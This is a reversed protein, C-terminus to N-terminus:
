AMCSIPLIVTLNSLVHLAHFPYISKINSRKRTLSSCSINSPIYISKRRSAIFTKAGFTSVVKEAPLDGASFHNKDTKETQTRRAYRAALLEKEKFM